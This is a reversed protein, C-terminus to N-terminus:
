AASHRLTVTGKGFHSVPLRYVYAAVAMYSWVM